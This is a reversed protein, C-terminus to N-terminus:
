QALQKVVFSRRHHVSPGDTRLAEVHQPTGYGANREWRYAPHRQALATLLRDRTVKAVISACAIGYCKADGDVVAVHEVRLAKMPTGDVLLHDPRISLRALARRMALATAQYINLRDIERASAAGLALCLARERIIAALRRREAPTLAKSDDVGRIARANPPMIIACAVVPGALSGRGVEDLGAILPGGARRLSREIDSWRGPGGAV